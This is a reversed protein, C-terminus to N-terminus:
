LLIPQAVEEFEADEAQGNFRDGAKSGPLWLVKDMEAKREREHQNKLFNFMANQYRAEARRKMSEFTAQAIKEYLQGATM